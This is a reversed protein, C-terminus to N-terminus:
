TRAITFLSPFCTWFPPFLHICTASKNARCHVSVCHQLTVITWEKCGWPSCGVWSRQGRSNWPLTSRHTAMEEELLDETISGMDGIDGTNAAPNKGSLWRPLEWYFYIFFYFCSVIGPNPIQTLSHKTIIRSRQCQCHNEYIWPTPSPCPPRTHQPGLPWLSDSLVSCSFQVSSHQYEPLPQSERSPEFLGEECMQPKPPIALLPSEMPGNKGEMSDWSEARPRDMLATQNGVPLSREWFSYNCFCSVFAVLRQLNAGPFQCLRM